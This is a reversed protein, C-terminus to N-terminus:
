SGLILKKLNNLETEEIIQLSDKDSLYNIKTKPLNLKRYLKNWYYINALSIAKHTICIYTLRKNVSGTEEYNFASCWACGEAIPCYFCEDTSQSRRTINSIKQFNEKEKSTTCIGKGAEGIYIPEQKGNLSSDMYRICPYLKGTYNVAINHGDVTGGCWNSNNDESM